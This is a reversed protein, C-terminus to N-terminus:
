FEFRIGIDIERRDDFFDPRNYYTSYGSATPDPETPSGTAPYVTLPNLRDFLNIIRTFVEFRGGFFVFSKRIVADVSSRSPLRASMPEGVRAGVIPTYPYGSQYSIIFSFSLRELPYGRLFKPGFHDPFQILLWTDMVHTQDYTQLLERKAETEATEVNWYGTWSYYRNAKAVSYTYNMKAKFYNSFQKEVTVDVGQATGHDYNDFNYYSYLGISDPDFGIINITGSLGTISKTWAMIDVTWMSGLQQKFGFEYQMTREAKIHPNGILPRPTTLDRTAAGVYMDRYSPVQFFHGYNFHFTTRDTIRYGFGLRPSVQWKKRGRLLPTTPDKPDSWLEGQSDAYDIRGGVNMIVRGLDIQDQLYASAEQPHEFYNDSYPNELYPLQIERFFIDYQRFEIGAKIEHQKTVQSTLDGKVGYSQQFDRHWYRMLGGKYVYVGRSSDYGVVELPDYFGATSSSSPHDPQDPVYHWMEDEDDPPGVGDHDYDSRNLGPGFEDGRLGPTRYTRSKWFRNFNLTYYTQPSLQHNLTIGQQETRDATLHRSNESFQWANVFNRFERNTIRHLLNIKLATLPSYTLKISYDWKQDFGFSKWGTFNDFPHAKRKRGYVLVSTTDGV